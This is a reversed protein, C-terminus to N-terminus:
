QPRGDAKQRDTQNRQDDRECELEACKSLHEGRNNSGRKTKVGACVVVYDKLESIIREVCPLSTLKEFLERTVIHKLLTFVVRDEALTALKAVTKIVNPSHHLSTISTVTTFAKERFPPHDFDGIVLLSNNVSRLKARAVAIQGRSIDLGVIASCRESLLRLLEGTGCGVDLVISSETLKLLSAVVQYKRRQESGYVKDYLKALADYRSAVESARLSSM